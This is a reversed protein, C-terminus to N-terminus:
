APSPLTLELVLGEPGNIKFQYTESEEVRKGTYTNGMKALRSEIDEVAGNFRFAVHDVVGIVDDGTVRSPSIHIVARENSQDYLWFGAESFAPRQGINAVGLNEFFSAM